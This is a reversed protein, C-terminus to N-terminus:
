RPATDGESSFREHVNYFTTVTKYCNVFLIVTIIFSDQKLFVSLIYQFEKVVFVHNFKTLIFGNHM